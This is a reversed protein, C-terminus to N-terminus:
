PSYVQSRLMLLVAKCVDQKGLSDPTRLAGGGCVCVPPVTQTAAEGEAALYVLCADYTLPKCQYPNFYELKCIKLLLNSPIWLTGWLLTM